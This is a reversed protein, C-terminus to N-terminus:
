NRLNNKPTTSGQSSAVMQGHDGQTKIDVHQYEEKIPSTQKGEVSDKLNSDIDISQSKQSTNGVEEHIVSSKRNHRLTGPEGEVESKISDHYEEHM